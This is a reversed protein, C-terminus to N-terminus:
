QTPYKNRKSESALSCTWGKAESLLRLLYGVCYIDSAFGGDAPQLLGLGLGISGHRNWPLPRMTTRHAAASRACAAHQQTSRHM